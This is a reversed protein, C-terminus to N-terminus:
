NPNKIQVSGTAPNLDFEDAPVDWYDLFNYNIIANKYITSGDLVTQGYVGGGKSIDYIWGWRRSDFYSLGRYVLAVRRERVLEKLAEALDSITGSVHPIGAGMYDRVKDVSALGETIKGTRINAEALMLENEEFSGALYAEYGGVSKNGYVYVGAMGNGGDLQKWRTSFTSVMGYPDSAFNNTFRKDGTKFNQIFREGIKFTAPSSPGTSQAAVNGGTASMFNNVNNSRGTFVLDGQKIGNNALAIINAWDGTTIASMTSGTITASPNNNVFPSLKNVLINRALMTNINRIWMDTSLVGGNGVQCFSPILQGLVSLYDASNAPIATLIDTAKKFNANSEAIIDDHTKYDANTTSATNTILGAYYQSGINAYAWGKWFYCFARITNKKVEANGIYTVADVKSLITNCANNMSYNAVWLYFFPNNGQSTSPRSNNTRLVARMPADNPISASNPDLKYSDPINIINVIQNAAEASLMDGLLESFGYPLSCYSNGLWGLNGNGIGNLYVGGSTLAILGSETKVNADITPQNPNGVNLEKKCSMVAFAPLLTLLFIKKNIKM